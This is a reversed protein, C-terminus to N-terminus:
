DGIKHGCRPCYNFEESEYGSSVGTREYVRVLDFEEAGIEILCDDCKKDVM